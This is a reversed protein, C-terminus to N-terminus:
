QWNVHFLKILNTIRHRNLFDHCQKCDYSTEVQWDYDAKKANLYSKM